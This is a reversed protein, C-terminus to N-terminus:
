RPCLDTVVELAKLSVEASGGRCVRMGPGQRKRQTAPLGGSLSARPRESNRGRRQPTETRNRRSDPAQFSTGNIKTQDDPLTFQSQAAFPLRRRRGHTAKPGYAVGEAKSSGRAENEYPKQM